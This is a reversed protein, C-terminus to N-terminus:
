NLVHSFAQSLPMGRCSRSLRSHRAHYKLRTAVGLLPRPELVAGLKGEQGSIASASGAFQDKTGSWVLRTRALVRDSGATKDVRKIRVTGPGFGEAASRADLNTGSSNTAAELTVDEPRLFSFLGRM